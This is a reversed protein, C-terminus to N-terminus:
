FRAEFIEVQCVPGYDDLGPGGFSMTGGASGPVNSAEFFSALEALNGPLPSWMMPSSLVEMPVRGVDRGNVAMRVVPIRLLFRRVTGAPRYGCSISQFNGALSFISAVPVDFKRVLQLESFRPAARRELLVHRSGALRTEYWRFAETWMAPTEAMPSRGDISDWDAILFRPGQDRLWRANLRDLYPTYASYRQVVPSLKLNLGDIRASSYMLSMEAVPADGAMARLEPELRTDPTFFHEESARIQPRLADPDLVQRIRDVESTGNVIAYAAPGMKAPVYEMWTIGYFVLVLALAAVRRLDIPMALAILGLALGAFCFLNVIHVDQRVFSHKFILFLPLPLLLAFFRRNERPALWLAVGMLLVMEGARAIEMPDGAISMGASYGGAIELSGKVYAILSGFSPMTLRCAVIAVLAPVTAALAADTWVRARRSWFGDVVFGLIAGGILIGGTLKILPALGALVLAAVYRVRGGRFRATVLLALAGAVLRDEPGSLPYYLPASLAFFVTFAFVNRLAFGCVFFLDAFIAALVAWEMWQFTFGRALNNGLDQPFALYGLPGTTWVLDRGIALGHAAGWNLAFVWTNDVSPFDPVFIFQSLLILVYAFLLGRAIARM